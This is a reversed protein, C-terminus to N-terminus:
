ISVSFRSYRSRRVKRTNMLLSSVTHCGGSKLKKIDAAQIGLDQLKDIETFGAAVEGVDDEEEEAAEVEKEKEIQQALEKRHNQGNTM